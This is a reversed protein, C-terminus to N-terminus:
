FHALFNLSPFFLTGGAVGANLGVVADFVKVVGFFILALETLSVWVPQFLALVTVKTAKCMSLALETHRDELFHLFVGVEIHEVKLCHPAREAVLVVLTIEAKVGM